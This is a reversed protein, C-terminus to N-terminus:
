DIVLQGCMVTTTLTYDDIDPATWYGGQETCGATTGWAAAEVCARPTIFGFCVHMSIILECVRPNTTTHERRVASCYFM